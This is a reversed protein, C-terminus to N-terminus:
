RWTLAGVLLGVMGASLVAGGVVKTGYGCGNAFQTTSCEPRNAYVLVAAGAISAVAGLVIAAQAAGNRGRRGGRYGGWQALAGSEVSVFQPTSRWVQASAAGLPANAAFMENNLSFRSREVPSLPLEPASAPQEGASVAAAPGAETRGQAESAGDVVLPSVPAGSSPPQDVSAVLTGSWQTGILCVILAGTTSLRHTRAM